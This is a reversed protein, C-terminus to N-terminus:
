KCRVNMSFGLDTSTFFFSQIFPSPKNLYSFHLFDNAFIIQKYHVGTNLSKSHMKVLIYVIHKMFNNGDEGPHLSVSPQSDWLDEYLPM